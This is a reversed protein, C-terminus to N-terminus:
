AGAHDDDWRDDYFGSTKVIEELCNWEAKMTEISWSMFLCSPRFGFVDKHFDSYCHQLQELESLEDWNRM